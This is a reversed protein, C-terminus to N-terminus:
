RLRSATRQGVAEVALSQGAPCNVLLAYSGWGDPGSEKGAADLDNWSSPVPVLAGAPLRDWGPDLFQQWAFVWEGQLPVARQLGPPLDLRGQLAAPQKAGASGIVLLLLLFVLAGPIRRGSSMRATYPSAEQGQDKGLFAVDWPVLGPGVREM